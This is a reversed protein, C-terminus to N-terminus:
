IKKKKGNKKLSFKIERWIPPLGARCAWRM